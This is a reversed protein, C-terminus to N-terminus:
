ASETIGGKWAPITKYKNAEKISGFPTLTTGLKNAESVSVKAQTSFPLLVVAVLGCLSVLKKNM